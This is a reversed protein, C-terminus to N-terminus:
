FVAFNMETFPDIIINFFVNMIFYEQTNVTIKLIVFINKFVM